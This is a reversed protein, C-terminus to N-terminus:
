ADEKIDLRAKALLAKCRCFQDPQGCFCLSWHRRRARIAKSIQQTLLKPNAFPFATQNWLLDDIETESLSEAHVEAIYKAVTM